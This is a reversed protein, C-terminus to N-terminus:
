NLVVSNEAKVTLAVVTGIAVSLYKLPPFYNVFSQWPQPNSM